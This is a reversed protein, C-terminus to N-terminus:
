LQWSSRGMFKRGFALGDSFLKCFQPTGHAKCSPVTSVNPNHALLGQKTQLRNIVRLDVRSPDFM